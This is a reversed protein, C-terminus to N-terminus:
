PVVRAVRQMVIDEVPLSAEGPPAFPSLQTETALMADLVEIGAVVQGFVTFGVSDLFGNDQMNIFFQSTGSNVNGGSLALAVSHLTSNSLGNGAESTVPDRTPTKAALEGDTRVVGGGQIVFPDCGGTTVNPSCVVRHILVGDYFGEDVYALFNEVHLPAAERDLEITLNGLNTEVLVQPRLEEVPDPDMMPDPDSMGPAAVMCGAVLLVPWAWGLSMAQRVRRLRLGM